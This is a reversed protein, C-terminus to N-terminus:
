KKKRKFPKVEAAGPAGGEKAAAEQRQAQLTNLQAALEENAKRLHAIEKAMSQIQEKRKEIWQQALVIKGQAAEFRSKWFFVWEQLTLKLEPPALGIESESLRKEDGM